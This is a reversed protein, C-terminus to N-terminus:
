NATWHDLIELVDERKWRLAIDRATNGWYNLMTMDAGRELLARVCKPSNAQVACHFATNMDGWRDDYELKRQNVPFGAEDLLWCLVDVRQDDKQKAAEHLAYSRRFDAGHTVLLQLTQIPAYEGASSLM